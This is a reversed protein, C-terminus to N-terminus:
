IAQATIAVERAQARKGKRPRPPLPIRQCLIAFLNGPPTGFFRQAATTGDIRRLLYNHVVTLAELRGASIQHLHHHRLALVGNRGEVCSSSRQFLDACQQALAWGQHRVAQPLSLWAPPPARLATELQSVVRNLAERTAADKAVQAARKLYLMPILVKLLLASAPPPLALAGVWQGVLTHFFAITAVMKPVVRAAKELRDHSRQPLDAKKAVTRAKDFWAGLEMSAEAATRVGGTRLDFPHYSTGIGRLVEGLAVQNAV